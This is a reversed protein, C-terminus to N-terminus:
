KRACHFAITQYPVEITDRGKLDPHAAILAELKEIVQTKEGVPLAAVFSVSMIRDVIVERPRGRQYTGAGESFGHRAAPHVDSM